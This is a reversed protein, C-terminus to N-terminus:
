SKGGARVAPPFAQDIFKNVVEEVIPKLPVAKGRRYTVDSCVVVKAGSDEIRQRLAEAGMGAYVVSHIAGIRVCAHMTFVGEPGLPMYVVIRDGRSVGLSSLANAIRSTHALIEEYTFSSSDGNESEYFLATKAGLGRAINRELCNYSLNTHGGIFWAHESGDIRSVSDWPKFWHLDHAAAEWFADPDQTCAEHWAGADAISAREIVRTPPALRITSQSLAKITQSTRSM